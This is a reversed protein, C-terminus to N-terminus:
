RIGSSIESLPSMETSIKGMVVRNATASHSVPSTGGLMSAKILFFGNSSNGILNVDQPVTPCNIGIHGTEGCEECPVRVDVMKLHYLGPNELKKMLLDIKVILMDVEELQHVKHTRTQTREENWSRNSAMKEVLKHAKEISLAFFSGGAAADIHEWVSHILGHNFSQIIFWEM